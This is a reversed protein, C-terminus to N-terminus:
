RLAVVTMQRMPSKTRRYSCFSPNCLTCYNYNFVMQDKTIGVQEFQLRNFQVLDFFWQNKRRRLVQQAFAYHEISNIFDASVEYCCVKASPGFFIKIHAPLSKYQQEMRELARLVIGAASGRWGAHVISVAVNFSDYLIIPLCDATALALGISPQNTTLFDGESSFSKLGKVQQIRHLSLGHSSHTQHLFVLSDILLHKKVLSFPKHLLLEDATRHLWESPIFSQRADGFFISFAADHHILM